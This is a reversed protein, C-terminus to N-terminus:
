LQWEARSAERNKQAEEEQKKRYWRNPEDWSHGEAEIRQRKSTITNRKMEELEEDSTEDLCARLDEMTVFGPSLYKELTERTFLREATLEIGQGVTWAKGYTEELVSPKTRDEPNKARVHRRTSVKSHEEMWAALLRQGLARRLREDEDQRTPTNAELKKLIRKHKENRM